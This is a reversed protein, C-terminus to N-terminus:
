SLEGLANMVLAVAVPGATEARLVRPGLSIPKFGATLASEFEQASFGAEPGVLITARKGKFDAVLSELRGAGYEPHFILNLAEPDTEKIFDEFDIPLSIMPRYSRRSQKMAALAVKELRTVRAKRRSSEGLKVKSKETLLPVFRSVGLETGKEVVTDFKGASSLGAALTLKTAPEGFNRLKDYTKIVTKKKGVSGVSGHYANGLGDILIVGDGPRLRLVSAAHNSEAPDLVVEAGILNEPAAYFLPKLM